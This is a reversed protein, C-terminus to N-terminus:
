RRGPKKNKGTLIDKMTQTTEAGKVRWIGLAVALMPTILSVLLAAIDKLFKTAASDRAQEIVSRHSYFSKRFEHLKLTPTRDSKLIGHMEDVARIKKIALLLSEYKKEHGERGMSSAVLVATIGNLNLKNKGTRVDLIYAGPAMSRINDPLRKKEKEYERVIADELHRMYEECSHTLAAIKKINVENEDSIVDQNEVKAELKGLQPSVDKDLNIDIENHTIDAGSVHAFLKLMMSSVNMMDLKKHIEAGWETDRHYVAIDLDSDTREIEQQLIEQLIAGHKLLLESTVGTLEPYNRSIFKNLHGVDYDYIEKETALRKKKRWESTKKVSLYLSYLNMMTLDYNGDALSKSIRNIHAQMEDPPVAIRIAPRAALLKTEELLMAVSEEPSMHEIHDWLGSFWKEDQSVDINALRLVRLGHGFAGRIEDFSMDNTNINGQECLEWIKQVRIDSIASIFSSFIYNSSQLYGQADENIAEDDQTENPFETTLRMFDIDKLFEIINKDLFLEQFEPTRLLPTLGHVFAPIIDDGGVFDPRVILKKAAHLFGALEILQPDTVKGSHYLNKIAQLANAIAVEKQKLAAIEKCDQRCKDSLTWYGKEREASNNLSELQMSREKAAAICQMKLKSQEENDVAVMELATLTDMYRVFNPRSKEAADFAAAIKDIELLNVAEHLLQIDAELVRNSEDLAEKAVASTGKTARTFISNSQDDPMLQQMVMQAHIGWVVGGLHLQMAKPLNLFYAKLEANEEMGDIVGLCRPDIEGIPAGQPLILKPGRVLDRLDLERKDPQTSLQVLMYELPYTIKTNGFIKADKMCDNALGFDGLAQYIREAIEKAKTTAGSRM